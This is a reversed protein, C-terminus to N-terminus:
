PELRAGVWLGSIFDKLTASSFHTRDARVRLRSLDGPDFVAGHVGTQHQLRLIVEERGDLPLVEAFRIEFEQVPDTPHANNPM